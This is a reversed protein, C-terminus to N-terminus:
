VMKNYPHPDRRFLARRVKPICLLVVALVVFMVILPHSNMATTANSARVSSMTRDLVTGYTSGQLQGKTAQQLWQTAHLTDLWESAYPTYVYMRHKAPNLYVLQPTQEAKIRFADHLLSPYKGADLWVFRLSQELVTQSKASWATALERMAQIQATITSAAKNSNAERGLVGIVFPKDGSQLSDKVSVGTVESLLPHGQLDIWSAIEKPAHDSGTQFAKALPLVAAPRDYRHDKFVLIHSGVSTYGAGTQGLLPAFQRLLEVDTSFLLQLPGKSAHVALEVADKESASVSPAQLYLFSVPSSRMVEQMNSLQVQKLPTYVDKQGLWKLMGSKTREGTVYRDATGNRYLRLTPFGRIEYKDCLDSYTVCNVALVNLQGQVSAAVEEYAAAMAQCHPCWPAYFKVFSAGQGRDEGLYTELAKADQIPATGFEVLGLVPGDFRAQAAPQPTASAKALASPAATGSAGSSSVNGEKKQKYAQAATDIYTSFAELSREVDVNGNTKSGDEYLVVQPYAEIRERDCLDMSVMCNVRALTFPATSDERYGDKSVELKSWMQAFQRCPTSSPTYFEVLWAGHSTM